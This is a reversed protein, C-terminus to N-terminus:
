MPGHRAVVSRRRLPPVGQEAASASCRTGLVVQCRRVPGVCAGKPSAQNGRRTPSGVRQRGARAGAAHEAVRHGGTPERNPPLAVRVPHRASPAPGVQLAGEIAQAFAQRTTIDDGVQEHYTSGRHRQCSSTSGLSGRATSAMNTGCPMTRSSDLLLRRRARSSGGPPEVFLSTSEPASAAWSLVTRPRHAPPILIGPATPASCTVASRRAPFIMQWTSTSARCVPRAPWVPSDPEYALELLGRIVGSDLRERHVRSPSARYAQQRDCGGSRFVRM